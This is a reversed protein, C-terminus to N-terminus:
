LCSDLIIMLDGRTQYHTLNNPSLTASLNLPLLVTALARSTCCLPSQVGDPYPASHGHWLRHFDWEHARTRFLSTDPPFFPSPVSSGGAKQEQNGWSIFLKVETHCHPLATSTLCFGTDWKDNPSM